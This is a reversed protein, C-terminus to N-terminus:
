LSALLADRRKELYDAIVVREEMSIGWESPPAAVAEAIDDPAVSSLNQYADQMESRQFQMESAIIIDPRATDAALLSASSWNPGCPFFHGHDVSYVMHPPDNQYIFQHDGPFVWGYLVALLAFRTRNEPVDKYTFSSRESCDPIWLSGHSLGYPMHHLQPEAEVLQAPLDVVSVQSVPAGMVQGLRGVVHDTILGRGVQRGKVVYKCGGDCALLAPNSYTGGWKKIFTRASIPQPVRLAAAAILSEWKDSSM